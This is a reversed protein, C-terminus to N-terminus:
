WLHQIIIGAPCQIIKLWYNNGTWGCSHLLTFNTRLNMMKACHQKNIAPHWVTLTLFPQNFLEKHCALEGGM